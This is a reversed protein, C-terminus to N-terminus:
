GFVLNFEFKKHCTKILSSKGTSLLATELEDVKSLTKFLLM